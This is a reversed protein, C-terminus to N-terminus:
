LTVQAGKIQNLFGQCSQSIAPNPVGDAAALLDLTIAAKELAELIYAQIAKLLKSAKQTISSPGTAAVIPQGESM